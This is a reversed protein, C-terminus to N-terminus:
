AVLWSTQEWLYIRWQELHEHGSLYAVSWNALESTSIRWQNIHENEFVFVGNLICVKLCLYAVSWATWEWVCIRWKLHISERVFVGCILINMRLCLYAVSWATWEWVCIRWQDLQENEFVFVGGIWHAGHSKGPPLAAPAHLKGSVEM